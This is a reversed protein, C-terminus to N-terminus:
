DDFRGGGHRGGVSTRRESLPIFLKKEYLLAFGRRPLKKARNKEHSSAKKRHCHRYGAKQTQRETSPEGLIDPDKEASDAAYGKQHDGSLRASCASREARVPLRRGKKHIKCAANPKRSPLPFAALGERYADYLSGETDRKHATSGDERRRDIRARPGGKHGIV